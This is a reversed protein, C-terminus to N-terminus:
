QSNKSLKNEVFLNIVDVSNFNDMSIEHNEVRIKFTAEIYILLKMAFLSNVFGLKFINDSDAFTVDDDFTMLNGMIFDRIKDKHDM